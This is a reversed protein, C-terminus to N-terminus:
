QMSKIVTEGASAGTANAAIFPSAAALFLYVVLLTGYLFSLKHNSQLPFDGKMWLPLFRFKDTFDLLRNFPRPFIERLPVRSDKTIFQSLNPGKGYREQMVAELETSARVAGKLLPHYWVKDMMRFVVTIISGFVALIFVTNFEIGGVLITRQAQIALFIAGFLAATVTVFLGRIKMEIDNFHRQTAIMEKWIDLDLRLADKLEIEDDQSPKKDTKETM